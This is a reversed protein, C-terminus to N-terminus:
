LMDHKKMKRWLEVRSIKLHGAMKGRNGGFTKFVEQLMKKEAQFKADKINLVSTGTGEDEAAPLFQRENKSGDSIIINRYEDPFHEFKIVQDNCFVYAHELMNQLERINGPFNYAMFFAMTKNSIGQINKSYKRNLKSIFHQVLLEIDERRERLPPIKINVIKLRYYLDERFKMNKILDPISKNTNAIIRVDAKLTKNSGLPEYSKEEIVHLLKVQLSLPLESIEDLLIIGGEAAAFKGPKDARADTFAGKVYGFLESELLTEPIAGCNVIIFPKKHRLSLNHIAKAILNKGVGSPGELLLNCDSESVAPLISTIRLMAESKGVIDKFSYKELLEHKVARIKEEAEKIETIDHILTVVRVVKEGKFVPLKRIEAHRAGGKYNVTREITSLKGTNFIQVYEEDIHEDFDFLRSIKNIHEGILSKEFGASSMAQEFIKNVLVIELNENVVFIVDNIANITTNYLLESRKVAEDALKQETIDSTVGDIRSVEGYSDMIINANDCLWRVEGDNRVIRFEAKDGGNKRVNELHMYFKDRDENFIMKFIFSSDSVFQEPAYGYIKSSAPSMYLFNFTNVTASWIATNLSKIIRNM